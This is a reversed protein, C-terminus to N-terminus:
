KTQKPLVKLRQMKGAPTTEPQLDLKAPNCLSSPVRLKKEGGLLLIPPASLVRLGRPSISLCSLVPTHNHTHTHTHTHAFRHMNPIELSVWKVLKSKLFSVPNFALNHRISQSPKPMHHPHRFLSHRLSHHKRTQLRRSRLSACSLSPLITNLM